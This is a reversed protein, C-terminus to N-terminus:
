RLPTNYQQEQLTKKGKETEISKRVLLGKPNYEYFVGFHQDDFQAAVKNDETYVTCNMMSNLPQIRFDDVLVMENTADNFDYALQIDYPTDPALGKFDKINAVFLSWNGTEAIKHMDFSKNGILAKLQPNNNKMNENNVDNLDSRLWLRIGLGNKLLMDTSITYNTAFAYNPNASLELSYRGSHADKNTNWNSFGNRTEFDVFIVEKNSANQAVLIPLTNQYGYKATSRIGLVDVEEVPYGFPSYAVVKSPSYWKAISEKTEYETENLKWSLMEFPGAILGGNYIRGNNPDNANTVADRYVYSRLPYRHKNLQNLIKTRKAADYTVNPYDNLMDATFWNNKYIAASANVVNTLREAEPSGLMKWEQEGPQKIKNYLQNIGYTVISGYSASLQNTNSTDLSKAAMDDYVWSAPINLSYYYGKHVGQETYLKETPATFGDYTRTLVPDGTYKDFALNETTQTVGDTTTTTSLLYSILNVVKSSSHQCLKSNSFNFSPSFSPTIAIPIIMNLDIEISFDCSVEQVESMYSTFDEETGPRLMAEQMIDNGSDYVLTSIKAGPDSYNYITRSTFAKENFASPIYAGPYTAKSKLKGHMDNLTFIYGQTLWAQHNSLNFPGLPIDLNIKKYTNDKKSLGSFDVDMPYQQCTYYTNVAYGTSTKNDVSESGGHINNIIIRSYGISAAPMISEGLPGEFQKSDRGNLARNFGTQKKREIFGVLANEERVSIPENTAVGSSQGNENVYHYESGYIMADGSDLGPDYMLLRKVRIGGGKKAYYTPLKFYSLKPNYQRCADKKKINKIDGWIWNYFMGTVFPIVNKRATEQASVNLDRGDKYAEKLYENDQDKYDGAKRGLLKGGNSLVTQYGVYRPLTKDKDGDYLNGKEEGKLLDKLGIENGLDLRIKTDGEIEINHVTTYGTIYDIAEDTTKLLPEGWGSLRYLFKFYLKHNTKIFYDELKKKYAKLIEKTSASGDNPIGLDSYNIYYKTHEAKYGDKKDNEQHKYDDVSLSIMAMAEENQVYAYDSQEYHVHIEGGSPLIIRKLQWAAPDFTPSPQKQSVWNQMNQSRNIGDDAIFGWADLMGAEYAPNEALADNNTRQVLNNYYAAWPYKSVIQSSYDKFYEYEFQYPAIKTKIIGGSETWVKKLTLKGKDDANPNSNSGNNINNFVDRCLTYDYEFYTTSLPKYFDSKSFLVIRELKEMDHNGQANEATAPDTDEDESGAADLGDYRMTQSGTLHTKVQSNAPFLSFYEEFDDEKTKNTIFFAIHTKTEIVKLYKVEKFGSTMSGTQDDNKLVRGRNYHLGNYPSRFKYWQNNNRTNNDGWATRYKFKTWGGFDGDSPGEINDADVYDFTKQSSILYMTAYKDDMKKGIVTRNLLPDNIHLTQGYVIDKGDNNQDLSITLEREKKVYVPDLYESRSGDKQTIVIDDILGNVPNTKYDIYSSSHARSTDLSLDYNGLELTHRSGITASLNNFYSTDYALEGGLDSTFRMKPLRESFTGNPNGSPFEVNNWQGRVMTTQVGLGLDFGIQFTLGIGLEVGISQITTVNTVPNPYFQGITYPNLKFGGMAGSGSVSFVDANNFPIGLFKDHKDFTTEKELQYDFLKDKSTSDNKKGVNKTNADGASYMYGFVDQSASPAQTQVALSGGLGMQFGFPIAAPNWQVSASTNWVSGANKAVSASLAPGNYSRIAYMHNFLSANVKWKSTVKSKFSTYKNVANAMKDGFNKNAENKADSSLENAMNRIIRFPNLSVGFTTEGGSKNMSMNACGYLGVGVGNAISFGTYNNYRSIHTFSVSIDAIDGAEEDMLQKLFEKDTLTKKATDNSSTQDQSENDDKSENPETTEKGQRKEQKKKAKEAKKDKKKQDKRKNKEEKLDGERKEEGEDQSHWELTFDYKSTASINPVTKNFSEIPINKFDDPYGRKQRNVAGPNLTWGFGVWSAEEESSVGSHYSLSMSYGGGDPGPVSLVPLNYTFSGSFDNVMDTTAVPEFSSFEPASPGATLAFAMTPMILQSLLNIAMFAAIFRSTRASRFTSLIPTKRKM